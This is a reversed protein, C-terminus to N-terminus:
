QTEALDLYYSELWAATDRIDFGSLRVAAAAEARDFRKSLAREVADAWAGAGAELPLREVAFPVAVALEPVGTSLVCPVGAAQAEMVSMPLGESFSPFVFADLAKLVDPVRDTVGFFVVDGELGADEVAQRVSGEFPGRGVLLLKADPIRRKVESFTEVLFLHNKVPDFRGVHGVLPVGAFGLSRKARECASPDGAYSDVDIANKLLHFRDGEVVAKGFRDVGAEMSCAIFNDAVRRVPYALARFGLETVSLPFKQSHSHAITVRGQRKAERLYVPACSGIHGHVVPHEPHRSFFDRCADRYTSYNVVKFRPLGRFVEGGLDKIEEDYDCVRQEHVLFDFQVKTRDIARYLNMIMTEAGGRDLAGIVHLVRIM